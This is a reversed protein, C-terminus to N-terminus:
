KSWRRLAGADFAKFEGPVQISDLGTAAAMGAFDDREFVPLADEVRTVVDFDAGGETLDFQEFRTNENLNMSGRLLLRWSDNWVRAIKAHNRIYRVSGAGHRRIWEAVADAGPRDADGGLMRAGGGDVILRCSLVDGEDRRRALVEVDFVSVRWTWVSVHAPGVQDLVAVIADLMSWQGRTVAFVAIGPEIRGIAESATRCSEVARRARNRMRASRAPARGPMM